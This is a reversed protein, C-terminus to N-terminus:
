AEPLPACYAGVGQARGAAFNIWHRRHSRELARKAGARLAHYADLTHAAVLLEYCDITLHSGM